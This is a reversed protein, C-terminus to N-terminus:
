DFLDEYVEDYDRLRIIEIGTNELFFRKGETKKDRNCCVFWGEKRRMDEWSVNKSSSYAHRNIGNAVIFALCDDRKRELVRKATNLDEIM